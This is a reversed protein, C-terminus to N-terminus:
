TAGPASGCPYGSASTVRSTAPCSTLSAIDSGSPFPHISGFPNSTPSLHSTPGCTPVGSPNAGLPEGYLWTILPCSYRSWLSHALTSELPAESQTWDVVVVEFWSGSGCTLRLCNLGTTLPLTWVAGPPPIPTCTESRRASTAPRATTTACLDVVVAASPLQDTDSAGCATPSSRSSISM